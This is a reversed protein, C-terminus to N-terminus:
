WGVEVLGNLTYKGGPIDKYIILVFLSIIDVYVYPLTWDFVTGVTYELKIFKNPNCM